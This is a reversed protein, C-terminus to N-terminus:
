ESQAQSEVEKPFLALNREHGQLARYRFVEGTDLRITDMTMREENRVEKTEVDRYEAKDKVIRSLNSIRSEVAEIEEKFANNACKKRLEIDALEACKDALEHGRIVLEDIELKVPLSEIPM